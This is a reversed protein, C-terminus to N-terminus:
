YGAKKGVINLLATGGRFRSLNDLFADLAPSLFGEVRDATHPSLLVNPMKWFPHDPPLPEIDFVDLAAGRLKGSQLARIMAPEDIVPGRGVNMIVASPKMDALEAEGIMGRTEATLPTALLLYDSAAMLERLQDPRYGTRRLPAIKMGFPKAREAAAQGISGYGIIGLTQGELMRGHVPKWIGDEQQKLVDRLRFAFFLMAAIVWDALPWRFVGRGNTLPAPHELLAPTIIGEVGTWLSHIWKTHSALPLIQTLLEPNGHAFMLVEANPAARKLEDLNDSITVRVETPLTSLPKLFPASPDAIVLVNL